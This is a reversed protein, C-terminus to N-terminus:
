LMFSESAIAVSGSVSCCREIECQVCETHGGSMVVGGSQAYCDRCISNEFTLSSGAYTMVVGGVNSAKCKDFTCSVMRVDGGDLYLVGGYHQSACDTFSCHSIYVCISRDSAFM